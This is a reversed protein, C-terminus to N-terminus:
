QHDEDESAPQELTMQRLAQDAQERIAVLSACVVAEMRNASRISIRGSDGEHSGDIELRSWSRTAPDVPLESLISLDLVRQLQSICVSTQCITYEPSWPLKQPNRHAERVLDIWVKVDVFAPMNGRDQVVIDVKQNVNKSRYESCETLNHELTNCISCGHMLGDPGAHLCRSLLHTRSGCGACTRQSSHDNKGSEGDKSGKEARSSPEGSTERPDIPPLALPGQEIRQRKAKNSMLISNDVSFVIVEYPQNAQEYEEIVNLWSPQNSTSSRYARSGMPTGSEGLINSSSGSTAKTQGGQFRGLGISSRTFSIPEIGDLIQVVSASRPLQAHQSGDPGSAGRQQQGNAPAARVPQKGKSRSEPLTRKSREDGNNNDNNDAM